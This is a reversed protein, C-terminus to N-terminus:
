GLFMVCRGAKTEFGSKEIRLGTCQGNPWWTVAEQVGQVFSCYTFLACRSTIFKHGNEPASKVSSSWLTLNSLCLILSVRAGRLQKPQQFLQSDYFWANM